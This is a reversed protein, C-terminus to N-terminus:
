LTDEKMGWWHLHLPTPLADYVRKMLFSICILGLTDKNQPFTWAEETGLEVARAKWEEDELNMADTQIM